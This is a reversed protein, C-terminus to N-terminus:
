SRIEEIFVVSVRFAVRKGNRTTTAVDFSDGDQEGVAMAGNVAGILTDIVDDRADLVALTNQNM